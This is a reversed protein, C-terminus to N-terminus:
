YMGVDVKKVDAYVLISVVEYLLDKGDSTTYLNACSTIIPSIKGEWPAKKKPNKYDYIAKEPSVKSLEDRIMNIQRATELADTSDCKGSQLFKMALPVRQKFLKLRVEITSIVSVWIDSTGIEVVRKNDSTVLTIM